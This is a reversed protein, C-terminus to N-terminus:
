SLNIMGEAVGDLRSGKLLWAPLASIQRQVGYGAWGAESCFLLERYKGALKHVLRRVTDPTIRSRASFASRVM